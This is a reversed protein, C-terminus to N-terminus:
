VFPPNSNGLAFSFFQSFSNQDNAVNRSSNERNIHPYFAPIKTRSIGSWFGLSDRRRAGNEIRGGEFGRCCIEENRPAARDGIANKPNPM